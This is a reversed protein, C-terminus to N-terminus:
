RAAWLLGRQMITKAEPVDFDKLVHGLSTYFVKGAGWRKKWVVPMVVGDVWPAHEAGFTTTALVINAPDVHMYYQESVMNFDKLGATVPDDFNTIHVKYPIINGPHAVWQGGTMFQYDVNNRFADCMGGHWGAMGVGSKVADLLGKEQEKTITSMTYCQVILNLSQMYAQDTYDDLKDSIKVEFGNSRLFAAFLDVCKDPEHGNWGGWTMLAKKM